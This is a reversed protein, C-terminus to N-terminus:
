RPSVAVRLERLGRFGVTAQWRLDDSVREIASFREFLHKFVLPVEIRALPAGICFHIGYGFTIHASKRRTVDLENPREVSDLDRNASGIFLFVRDGAEIEPCDLAGHRTANRVTIQVPSDYRLFEEVAQTPSVSGDALVRGQDPNRMLALLGNGVTNTSTGHGAFLLMAATAVVEQESLADGNNRAGVLASVLDTGPNRTRERVLETLYSGLEGLAALARERRNPVDVAGGIYDTLAESWGAFLPEDAIPVGLLLVITGVSAPRALETIVDIEGVEAARQVLERVLADASPAMAKMPGSIVGRVLGRARTHFPPDAFTFWTALGQYLALSVPDPSESERMAELYPSFRAASLDERDLSARVDEYRTLGWGSLSESWHIRGAARLHEYLPYPDAQIEPALLDYDARPVAGDGESALSSM